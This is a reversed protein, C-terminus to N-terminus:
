GAYPDANPDTIDPADAPAPEPPPEQPAPEPAPADPAPQDSGGNGGDTPTTGADPFPLPLGYKAAQDNAQRKAYDEAKKKAADEAAKAYQDVVSGPAPAEPTSTQPAPTGGQPTPQAAFLGPNLRIANANILSPSKTLQPKAQSPAAVGQKAGASGPATTTAAPTQSKKYLVYGIGLVAAGGLIYPLKSSM